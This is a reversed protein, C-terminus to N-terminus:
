FGRIIRQPAGLDCAAQHIRSAMGLAEIKLVAPSEETVEVHSDTLVIWVM